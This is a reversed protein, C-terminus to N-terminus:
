PKRLEEKWRSILRLRQLVKSTRRAERPALQVGRVFINFSAGRQRERQLGCKSCKIIVAASKPVENKSGCRPCLKTTGVAPVMVAGGTKYGVISSLKRWDVTSIDRNWRRGRSFMGQKETDEFVHEYGEYRDIIDNAVEYLENNVRNWERRRYKEILRSYVRKKTKWFQQQVRRRKNHCAIHLTYAKRLSVSDFGSSSSFGDISQLNNDWGVVPQRSRHHHYQRRVTVILKQETVLVEGLDEEDIVRHGLFEGARPLWWSGKFDFRIFQRPHISLRLVRDRVTIMTTKFRAFRRKLLPRREKRYGKLYNSRWSTLISWADKLTGDVLHKSYFWGEVLQNRLGRLAEKKSPLHPIWRKVYSRWTLGRRADPPLKRFTKSSVLPRFEWESSWRVRQWLVGIARNVTEVYERILHSLLVRETEENLGFCWLPMVYARVDYRLKQRM